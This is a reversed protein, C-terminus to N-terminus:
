PSKFPAPVPVTDGGTSSVQAITAGADTKSFYLRSGDTLLPGFKRGGDSTIQVSGVVKPVPVPRTFMYTLATAVIIAASTFALAGMRRKQVGQLASGSDTEEKIETLAVKIDAMSQWRREPDKRLCRIIVRELEKPTNAVVQTAPKPDDRLIASLTSISSERQFARQGTTM